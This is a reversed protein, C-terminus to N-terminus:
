NRRGITFGANRLCRAGWGTRFGQHTRVDRECNRPFDIKHPFHRAMCGRTLMRVRGQNTAFDQVCRQPLVKRLNHPKTPHRPIPTVHQARPPRQPWSNTRTTVQAQADGKNDKIIKAIAATAFLGFIIKGIQDEDLGGQATAPTFSLSLATAGAILTKFM